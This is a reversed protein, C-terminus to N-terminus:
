VGSYLRTKLHKLADFYAKPNVKLQDSWYAQIVTDINNTRNFVFSAKGRSDVREIGVISFGSTALASALAMDFTSFKNSDYNNM